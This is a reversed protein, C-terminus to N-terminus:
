ANIYNDVINEWLFHKVTQEYLANGLELSLKKDQLLKIIKDALQLDNDPEVLLGNKGNCIIEPIGGVNSAIVPIKCIGAELIVIGFSEYRSPLVFVSASHMINLVEDNHIDTLLQVNDSLELQQIMTNLYEIAEGTRGIIILGIDPIIKNVRHFAKLLVDQGKINEFAGINLLYKKFRPIVSSTFKKHLLTANIGNNIVKIKNSSLNVFNNKVSEALQTSCATITDAQSVIFHWANYKYAISKKIDILDTGHFTLIFRGKFIGLKKLIAFNFSAPSPYHFNIVQINNNNIFNRLKILEFPLTMLYKILSTILIKGSFPTTIRFNFTDRNDNKTIKTDHSSWTQVFIFPKIDERKEMIDYLSKVVQNVGGQHSLNWPIAFLFAKKRVTM